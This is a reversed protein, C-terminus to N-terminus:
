IMAVTVSPPQHLRGFGFRRMTYRRSSTGVSVTIPCMHRTRASWPMGSGSRWGSPEWLISSFSMLNAAVIEVPRCGTQPLISAISTFAPRESPSFTKIPTAITAIAATTTMMATAAALALPLPPCWWWLPPPPPPHLAGTTTYTSGQILLGAMTRLRRRARRARTAASYEASKIYRRPVTTCVAAGAAPPPVIPTTAAGTTTRVIASGSHHPLSWM